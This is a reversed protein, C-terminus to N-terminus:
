RSWLTSGLSWVVIAAICVVSLVSLYWFFTRYRRESTEDEDPRAASLPAGCQPCAPNRGAATQGSVLRGGCGPRTCYRGDRESGAGTRTEGPQASSNHANM